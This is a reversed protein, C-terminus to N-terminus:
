HDRGAAWSAIAARVTSAVDEDDRFSWEVKQATVTQDDSANFLLVAKVAPHRSPLATLADRYWAQTHRLDTVSFAIQCLPPGSM